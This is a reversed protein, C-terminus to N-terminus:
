KSNKGGGMGQSRRNGSTESKKSETGRSVGQIMSNSQHESSSSDKNFNIIM